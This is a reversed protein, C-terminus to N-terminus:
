ENRWAKARLMKGFAASNEVEQFMTLEEELAISFPETPMQAHQLPDLKPINLPQDFEKAYYHLASIVLEQLSQQNQETLRMLKKELAPDQLIVHIDKM